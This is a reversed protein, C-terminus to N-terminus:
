EFDENSRNYEYYGYGKDNSIPTDNLVFGLINAKVKQLSAKTEIVQNKRVYNQRIVMIVGDVISSIIQPDTVSSVPPTDLVILDFYDGLNELLRIMQTSALLEAPNPPIPGSPLLYLNLDQFKQIVNLPQIEENILLTSLGQNNNLKFTKHLTPKRLDGDIILVKRDTQAYTYALNVATLTKGEMPISSTIAISNLQKGIQAFEINTRLTRYQESVSSRPEFYTILSAGLKQENELKAVKRGKKFNFM